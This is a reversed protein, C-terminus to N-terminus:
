LSWSVTDRLTNVQYVEHKIVDILYRKRFETVAYLHIGCLCMHLYYHQTQLTLKRERLKLQREFMVETWNSIWFSYEGLALIHVEQM